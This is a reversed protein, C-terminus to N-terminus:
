KPGDAICIKRLKICRTLVKIRKKIANLNKGSNAANRKESMNRTCGRKIMDILSGFWIDIDM